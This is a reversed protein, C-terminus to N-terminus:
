TGSFTIGWSNVLNTDQVQAVGPLDSVLNAQRYRDANSKYFVYDATYPVQREEGVVAGPAAPALGGVINVRQVYSGDSFLGPGNRSITRLLLWPIATVDPTCSEVRQAVVRSGSTTEWAPGAPTGFHIGVQADHNADAYLIASPAVFAWNSGDWRYIQVGVAFVHSVLQNDESPALKECGPALDPARHDNDARATFNAAACLALLAAVKIDKAAPGFFRGACKLRSNKNM